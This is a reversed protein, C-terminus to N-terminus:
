NFRVDWPLMGLLFALFCALENEDQDGEDFCLRFNIADAAGNILKRRFHIVYSATREIRMTLLSPRLDAVSLPGDVSLRLSCM